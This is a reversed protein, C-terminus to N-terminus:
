LISLEAVPWHHARVLHNLPSPRAFLHVTHAACVTEICVRLSLYLIVREHELGCGALEVVVVLALHSKLLMQAGKVM